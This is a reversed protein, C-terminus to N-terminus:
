GGVTIAITAGRLVRIFEDPVNGDPQDTWRNGDKLSILNYPGSGTNAGVYLEGNRESGGDHRYVAGRVILVPSEGRERPESLLCVANKPYQQKDDDYM